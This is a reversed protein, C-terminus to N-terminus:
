VFIAKSNIQLRKHTDKSNNVKNWSFRNEKKNKEWIEKRQLAVCAPFDETFIVDTIIIM